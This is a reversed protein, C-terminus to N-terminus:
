DFLIYKHQKALDQSKFLADFQHDLKKKYSSNKYTNTVMLLLM